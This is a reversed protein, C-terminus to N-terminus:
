DAVVEITIMKATLTGDRLRAMIRAMHSQLNIASQILYPEGGWLLADRGISHGYNHFGNALGPPQTDEGEPDIGGYARGDAYIHFSLM